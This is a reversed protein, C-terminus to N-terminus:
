ALTLCFAKYSFNTCVDIKYSNGATCLVKYNDSRNNVAVSFVNTPSCPVHANRDGNLAWHNVFPESGASIILDDHFMAFNVAANPTQFVTTPSMSRMHWMCLAPGGGCIMWDDVKDVAVTSIWKGIKPRACEDNKQPEIIHV